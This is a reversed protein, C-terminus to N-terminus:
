VSRKRYSLKSGTQLEPMLHWQLQNTSKLRRCSCWDFACFQWKAFFRAWFTESPSVIDIDNKNRVRVAEDKASELARLEMSFKKQMAEVQFLCFRKQILCTWCIIMKWIEMLAESQLSCYHLAWAQTIPSTPKEHKSERKLRMKSIDLNWCSQTKCCLKWHIKCSGSSLFHCPSSSMNDGRRCAKSWTTGPWNATESHHFFQLRCWHSSERCFWLDLM